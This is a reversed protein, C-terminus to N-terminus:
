GQRSGSKARVKPERAQTQTEARHGELRAILADAWADGEDSLRKSVEEESAIAREIRDLIRSQRALLKNQKEILDGVARAQQEREGRAAALAHEIADLRDALPREEGSVFPDPTAAPQQGAPGDYFEGVDFGFADAVASLNRAYPVSAGSEWRQWQRATVGAKAAAQDQPLPEGAKEPHGIDTRLRVLRNVVNERQIAL